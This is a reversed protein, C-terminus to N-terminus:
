SCRSAASDPRGALRDDADHDGRRHHLLDPGLHDPRGLGVGIGAMHPLAVNAITTDLATMTTAVMISVTVMTRNAGAM